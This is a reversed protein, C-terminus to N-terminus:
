GLKVKIVAGFDVKNVFADKLDIQNITCLISRIVGAHCVLVLPSEQEAISEIFQSVREHLGIFSEGNPTSRNVFDNMWPMSDEEPIANWAKMEWDGFNMEMLRHDTLVIDSLHNALQLCRQLPSSYVVAQPPIQAKISDFVAQYPERIAVDTQGYCIGKECVTETHRVLYIEM